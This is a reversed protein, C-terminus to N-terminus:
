GGQKEEKILNMQEAMEVAPRDGRSLGLSVAVVGLAWLSPNNLCHGHQDIRESPAKM